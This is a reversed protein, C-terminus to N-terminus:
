ANRVRVLLTCKATRTPISYRRFADIVYNSSVSYKKGIEKIIMGDEWYMRALDIKSLSNFDERSLKKM